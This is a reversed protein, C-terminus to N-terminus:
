IEKKLNVKKLELKYKEYTSDHTDHVTEAEYSLNISISDEKFIYQVIMNSEKVFPTNEVKKVATFVNDDIYYENFMYEGNAIYIHKVIFLTNKLLIEYEANPLIREDGNKRMYHTDGETYILHNQELKDKKGSSNTVDTRKYKVIKEDFDYSM